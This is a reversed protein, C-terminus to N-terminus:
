SQGLKDAAQTDTLIIKLPTVLPICKSLIIESQDKQVLWGKIAKEAAQQCHYVAIDFFPEPGTTLRVASDLDRQAKDLWSKVLEEKPEM